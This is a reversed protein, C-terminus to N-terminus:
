SNESDSSSDESDSSSDESHSSSDESDLSSDENDSSSDRSDAPRPFDQVTVEPMPEDPEDEPMPEDVDMDTSLSLHVDEMSLPFSISTSEATPPDPLIDTSSKALSCDTCKWNLQIRDTFM